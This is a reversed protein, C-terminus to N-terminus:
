EVVAWLRTLFNSRNLAGKVQVLAVRGEEIHYAVFYWRRHIHRTRAPKARPRCRRRTRLLPRWGRGRSILVLPFFVAQAVTNSRIHWETPAARACEPWFTVTLQAWRRGLVWVSRVRVATYLVYLVNCVRTSGYRVM